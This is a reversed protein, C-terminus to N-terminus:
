QLYGAMALDAEGSNGGENRCWVFFVHEGSSVYVKTQHDAVYLDRTNANISGMFQAPVVDIDAFTGPIQKELTVSVPRQQSPLSMEVSLHEIVFRKGDPVTYVDQTACTSGGSMTIQKVLIEVPSLSSVDRVLVPNSAPNNVTIAGPFGTVAVTGVVPVPASPGNVILAELPKLAGQALAATAGHASLGIAIVGLATAAFTGRLIRNM